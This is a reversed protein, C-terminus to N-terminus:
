EEAYFRFLPKRIRRPYKNGILGGRSMRKIKSPMKFKSRYKELDGGLTIETYYRLCPGMSKLEELTYKRKSNYIDVQDTKNKKTRSKKKRLKKNNNSKDKSIYEKLDM